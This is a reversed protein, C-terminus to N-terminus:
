FTTDGWILCLTVETLEPLHRCGHCPHLKRGEERGVDVQERGVPWGYIENLGSKHHHRALACHIQSALSTVSFSMRAQYLLKCM